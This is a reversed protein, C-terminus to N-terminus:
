TRKKRKRRMSSSQHRAAERGRHAVKAGLTRNSTKGRKKMRM